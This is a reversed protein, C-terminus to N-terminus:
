AEPGGARCTSHHRPRRTSTPRRGPKPRAGPLASRATLWAHPQALCRGGSRPAAVAAAGACAAGGQLLLLSCTRTVVSGRAVSPALALWDPNFEGRSARGRLGGARACAAAAWILAGKMIRKSAMGAAAASSALHSRHHQQSARTWKRRQAPWREGILLRLVNSQIPYTSPRPPPGACIGPAACNRGHAPPLCAAGLPLRRSAVAFPLAAAACVPPCPGDCISHYTVIVFGAQKAPPVVCQSQGRQSRRSHQNPQWIVVRGAGLRASWLPRTHKSQLLVPCFLLHLIM